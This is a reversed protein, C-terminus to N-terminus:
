LLQWRSLFEGATYGDCEEGEHLLKNIENIDDGTPLKHTLPHAALPVM